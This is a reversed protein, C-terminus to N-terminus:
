QILAGVEYKTIEGNPLEPETWSLSICSLNFPTVYVDVPGPETIIFNGDLYVPSQKLYNLGCYPLSSM